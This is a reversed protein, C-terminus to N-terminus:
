VLFTFNSLVQGMEEKSIPKSTFNIKSTIYYLVYYDSFSPFSERISLYWHKVQLSYPNLKVPTLNQVLAHYNSLSYIDFNDLRGVSLIAGFDLDKSFTYPVRSFAKFEDISSLTTNKMPLNNRVWALKLFQQKTVLFLKVLWTSGLRPYLFTEVENNSTKFFRVDFDRLEIATSSKFRGLSTDKVMLKEFMTDAMYYDYVAYWVYSHQTDKTKINTSLYNELITDKDSEHDFSDESMGESINLIKNGLINEIQTLIKNNETNFNDKSSEYFERLDEEEDESDKYTHRISKFSSQEHKLRSQQSERFM